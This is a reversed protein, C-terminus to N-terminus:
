TALIDFAQQPTVSYIDVWDHLWGGFRLAECALGSCVWSSRRAGRFSPFWDWTVIDIAIALITLIGYEQGVQANAFALIRARDVGDPPPMTVFSGGPAVDDLKSTGSVGSCKAQIVYAVGDTMESVIFQHNWESKRFKLWEGVRILWGTVDKTRAFGIDGPQIM